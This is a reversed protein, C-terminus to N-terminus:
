RKRDQRLLKTSDPVNAPPVFRRRRLGALVVKQTGRRKREEVAQALLVLVEATLSQNESSALRHLHEYLDEPVNRIHLTPM